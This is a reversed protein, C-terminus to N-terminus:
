KTPLNPAEVPTAKASVHSARDAEEKRLRRELSRLDPPALFRVLQQETWTLLKADKPPLGFGPERAVRRLVGPSVRLITALERM